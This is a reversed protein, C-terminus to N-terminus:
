PLNDGKESGDRSDYMCRFRPFFYEGLPSDGWRMSAKM